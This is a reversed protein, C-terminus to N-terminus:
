LHTLQKSPPQHHPDREKSYNYIARHDEYGFLQQEVPVGMKELAAQRAMMYKSQQEKAKKNNYTQLKQLDSQLKKEKSKSNPRFVQKSAGAANRRKKNKKAM